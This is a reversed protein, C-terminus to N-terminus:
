GEIVSSLLYGDCACMLEAVDARLGIFRVNARLEAALAHLEPEQPGEGAILLLGGRQAAFARLMTPYDKKWMLRGVALWVFEDGAGLTLRMRERLAADPRFRRTDVGNPIVRRKRGPTHCVAVTSNALADTIRYIRDRLRTSGSTRSSEVASHITSIGVPVPCVMRAARGLLNAHFMHCHLVQPRIKRLLAALRAFGLPGPVGPRMGLSYVPVRAAALEEEFASPPLMSIVSVEWGRRRLGRALQAVQTEAGGRALNTSLMVVRGIM